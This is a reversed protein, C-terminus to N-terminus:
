PAIAATSAVHTDIAQARHRRSARSSAYQPRPPTRDNHLRPPETPDPVRSLSRRLCRTIPYPQLDVLRAAPVDGGSSPGGSPAAPRPVHRGRVPTPHESIMSTARAADCQPAGGKNPCCFRKPLLGNPCCFRKPLDLLHGNMVHRHPPVAHPPSGHPAVLSVLAVNSRGVVLSQARAPEAHACAVCVHAHCKKGPM